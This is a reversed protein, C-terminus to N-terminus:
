SRLGPSRLARSPEHRAGRRPLSARCCWAAEVVLQADAVGDELSTVTRIRGLAEEKEGASILEKRVQRDMNKFITSLAKELVDQDMDVLTVTRGAQACIHAIGNGMTGGGIVTIRQVNM